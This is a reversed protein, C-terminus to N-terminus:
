NHNLQMSIAFLSYGVDYMQKKNTIDWPGYEHMILFERSNREIRGRYIDYVYESTFEGVIIFIEHRDQSIIFKRSKWDAERRPHNPEEYYEGINDKAEKWLEPKKSYGLWWKHVKKSVYKM